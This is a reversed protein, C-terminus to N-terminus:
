KRQNLPNSSGASPATVAPGPAPTTLVEPTMPKKATSHMKNMKKKAGTSPEDMKRIAKNAATKAQGQVQKPKTNIVAAGKPDTVPASPAQTSTGSTVPTNTVSTPTRGQAAGPKVVVASDKKPLETSAAQAFAGGAFLGAVVLT